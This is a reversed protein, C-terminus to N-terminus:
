LDVSINLAGFDKLLRWLWMLHQGCHEDGSQLYM